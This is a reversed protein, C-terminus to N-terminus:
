RRAKRKVDRLGLSLILYLLLSGSPFVLLCVWATFAWPDGQALSAGMFLWFFIGGAASLRRWALIRRTRGTALRTISALTSAFKVLGLGLALLGWSVAPALARLVVFLAPYRSYPTALLFWAGVTMSALGMLLELPEPGFAMLHALAARGFKQRAEPPATSM